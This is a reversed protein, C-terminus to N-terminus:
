STVLGLMMSNNIGLTAIARENLHNILSIKSKEEITKDVRWSEKM